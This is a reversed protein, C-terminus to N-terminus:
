RAAEREPARGPPAGDPALGAAVSERFKGALFDCEAVRTACAAASRPKIARREQAAWEPKGAREYIEAVAEHLGGVPPAGVM